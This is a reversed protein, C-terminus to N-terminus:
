QLKGDRIMMKMEESTLVKQAPHVLKYLDAICLASNSQTPDSRHKFLQARDVELLAFELSKLSIGVHAVELRLQTFFKIKFDKHASQGSSSSALYKDICQLAKAVPLDTQITKLFDVVPQEQWSAAIDLPSQPGHNNENLPGIKQFPLAFGFHAGADLLLKIRDLHGHKAAWHLPTYFYHTCVNPNAGNKLLLDLIATMEVPKFEKSCNVAKHLPALDDQHEEKESGIIFRTKVNILAKCEPRNLLMKVLNVHGQEVSIHLLTEGKPTKEDPNAGKRLLLEVVDTHGYFVSLYLPSRGHNDVKKLDAGQLILNNVTGLRGKAAATLLLTSLTPAEAKVYESIDFVFEKNPRICNEKTAVLLAGGKSPFALKLDNFSKQTANTFILLWPKSTENEIFGPEELKRNVNSITANEPLKLMLALERYGKEISAKSSGDIQKILAFKDMCKYAFAIALEDADQKGSGHLLTLPTQLGAAWQTSFDNHNLQNVFIHDKLQNLLYDRGVFEQKTRPAEIGITGKFVKLFYSQSLEQSFLPEGFFQHTAQYGSKILTRKQEETLNFDLATIKGIDIKLIRTAAYPNLDRISSEASMYVGMLSKLLQMLTSVKAPDEVIPEPSSVLDFGVTRTNFIPFMGDKKTPQKTQYREFDYTEIPLNYLMGGDVFMGREPCNIRKGGSKIHITHPKYVAPISMSIRLIDAIIIDDCEKDESSFKVISRSNPSNLKTGYITLHRFPKSNSEVAKRLEGFTYHRDGTKKEIREQAWKLFAHGECIGTLKFLADLTGIPNLVIQTASRFTRFFDWAKGIASGGPAVLSLLADKDGPPDFFEVINTTKLLEEVELDQYDLALLVATIAGASTGAVRQVNPWIGDNVLAKFAGAYAVGKAGGGKFVANEPLEPSTADKQPEMWSQNALYNSISKDAPNGGNRAHEFPTRNQDDFVQTQAGLKTLLQVTKFHHNAAALHLPRRKQNDFTELDAGQHFLLHIPLNRGQSAALNLPTLGYADREELFKDFPINNAELCSIVKKTYLLYELMLPKDYRVAVHLINGLNPILKFLDARLLLEACDRTGYKIALALPHLEFGDETLSVNWNKQGMFWKVVGAHGAKIAVHLATEGARNRDTLNQHDSLLKLAGLHGRSAAYHLATNGEADVAHIVKIQSDLLPAIVELNGKKAAHMLLTREKIDKLRNLQEDNCLALKTPDALIMKICSKQVKFADDDSVIGFNLKLQNIYSSDISM